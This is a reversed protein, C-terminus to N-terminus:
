NMWLNLMNEEIEETKNVLQWSKISLRKERDEKTVSPLKNKENTNIGLVVSIFSNNKIKVEYSIENESYDIQIDGITELMMKANVDNVKIKKKAIEYLVSDIHAMMDVAKSDAEQYLSNYETKKNTIKYDTNTVMYSLVSLITLCVVIFIILISTTGIGLNYVKSKKM